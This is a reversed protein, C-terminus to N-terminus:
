RIIYTDKEMNIQVLPIKSKISNFLSYLEDLKDESPAINELREILSPVKKSM